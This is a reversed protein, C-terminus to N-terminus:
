GIAGRLDEATVTKGSQILERAAPVQDWVNCMMAGRLKGERLFYLVGTDNEQKWDAVVELSPNIDGVAEYGFEFLDSYFYPLYDYREGAGALNRGAQRGQNVANDWHEVRRREGLTADPFRALDGAAYIGPASTQLYEDVEVGDGLTLGAQEALAVELGIGVGAVVIDAPLREGGQAVVTFGDEAREIAAPKERSLIRVGLGEYHQTLARGLGAPFVRQVLHEEPFLMTVDVGQLNLAAAMESGIFSGGIVVARKGATALPRLALFDDLYRYYCLGKTEGGPLTLRRPVGGTALLLKEYTFERGDSFTVQRAAADLGVARVGLLMEVGQEAYYGESRLFAEEVQGEPTWLKKSLPPREYPRHQEEGLLLISGEPDLERLGEVASGGATGAGVIVYRYAPVAM